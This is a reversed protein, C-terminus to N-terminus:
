LPPIAHEQQGASLARRALNGTAFNRDIAAVAIMENILLNSSRLVMRWFRLDQQLRARVRAVDGAVAHQWAELLHLDQGDLLSAYAPFLASTNAPVTRAM